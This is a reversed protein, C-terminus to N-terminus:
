IAEDNAGGGLFPEFYRRVDRMPPFHPAFSPILKRKGGAWKIFPKAEVRQYLLEADYSLQPEKTQLMASLVEKKCIM